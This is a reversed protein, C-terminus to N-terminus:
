RSITSANKGSSCERAGRPTEPVAGADLADGASRVPLSRGPSV